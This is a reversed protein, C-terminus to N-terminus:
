AGKRAARRRIQWECVFWVGFLVLLAILANYIIPGTRWTSPIRGRLWASPTGASMVSKGRRTRYVRSASRMADFPWGHEFTHHGVWEEYEYEKSQIFESETMEKDIMGYRFAAGIKPVFRGRVNAWILGGAVFMLVIATSLHIQFRARRPPTTM